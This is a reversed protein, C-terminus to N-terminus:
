LCIQLLLALTHASSWSECQKDISKRGDKNRLNIWWMTVTQPDTFRTGCDDSSVNVVSHCMIDFMDCIHGGHKLDKFLFKLKTSRCLSRRNLQTNKYLHLIEQLNFDSEKHEETFMSCLLSYFSFLITKVRIRGPKERRYRKMMMMEKEHFRKFSVFLLTISLLCRTRHSHWKEHPSKCTSPRKYLSSREFHPFNEDAPSKGKNCNFRFLLKWQLDRTTGTNLSHTSKRKM